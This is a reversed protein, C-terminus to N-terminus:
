GIELFFIKKSFKQAKRAFPLKTEAIRFGFKLVNELV